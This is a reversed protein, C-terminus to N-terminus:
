SLNHGAHSGEVNREMAIHIRDTGRLRLLSVMSSPIAWEMIFYLIWGAFYQLGGRSVIARETSAEKPSMRVSVSQFEIASDETILVTRM